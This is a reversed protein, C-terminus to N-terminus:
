HPTLLIFVNSSSSTRSGVMTLRFAHTQSAKSHVGRMNPTPTSRLFSHLDRTFRRYLFRGACGFQAKVGKVSQIGQWDVGPSPWPDARRNTAGSAGAARIREGYGPGGLVLLKLESKLDRITRELLTTKESRPSSVLNLALM